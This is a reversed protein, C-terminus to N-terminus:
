RFDSGYAQYLRNLDDGDIVGYYVPRGTMAKGLAHARMAEHISEDVKSHYVVFFVEAPSGLLRAVQDGRAGMKKPTLTGQTARGKLAFAAAVRSGRRRFKNTFLDNKEGGWDKFDNNEGIIKKLASKVKEERMKNLKIGRAVKHGRVLKFSEVDDVTIEHPAASARLRVTISKHQTGHPRSPTPYKKALSPKRAISLIRKQFHSYTEDKRYATENKIKGKEVVHNAYLKGAEQAVRVRSLGTLRMLESVPKFRRKSKYIAIFIKQRAKSKGVARAATEIAQNPNSRFDSVSAPM